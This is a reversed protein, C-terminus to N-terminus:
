LCQYECTKNPGWAKTVSAVSGGLAVGGISKGPVILTNTTKPLTAQAAAPLALAVTAFLVAVIRAKM